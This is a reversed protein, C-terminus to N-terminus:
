KLSFKKQFFANKLDVQEIIYNQEFVIWISPTPPSLLYCKVILSDEIVAHEWIKIKKRKTGKTLVYFLLVLYSFM